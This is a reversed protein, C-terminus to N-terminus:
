IDHCRKCVIKAGHATHCDVCAKMNLARAPEMQEQASVDGHCEACGIKGRAHRAHSFIVYEPLNDYQAQFPRAKAPLKLLRQITPSRLTMAKHCVLCRGAAPLGARSAKAATTHCSACEMELPAHRKHSFWAEPEVDGARGTAIMVLLGALLRM